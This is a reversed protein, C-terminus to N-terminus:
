PPCARLKRLDASNSLCYASGRGAAGRMIHEIRGVGSPEPRTAELELNGVLQAEETSTGAGARDWLHGLGLQYERLHEIISDITPKFLANMADPSMRLMGQSSWKVFDVSPISLMLLLLGHTLAHCGPPDACIHPDALIDTEDQPHLKKFGVM